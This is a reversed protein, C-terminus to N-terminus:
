IRTLSPSPPPARALFSATVDTGLCPSLRSRVLFDPSVDSTGDPGALSALLSQAAVVVRCIQCTLPDHQTQADNREGDHSDAAEAPEAIPLPLACGDQLCGLHYIGLIPSWYLVALAVLASFAGAKGFRSRLFAATRM